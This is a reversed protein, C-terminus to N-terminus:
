RICNSATEVSELQTARVESGALMEKRSAEGSIGESKLPGEGSGLLRSRHVWADREAIICVWHRRKSSGLSTRIGIIQGLHTRKKGSVGHGCSFSIGVIGHAILEEVGCEDFPQGIGDNPPSDSFRFWCHNLVCKSQCKFHLGTQVEMALLGVSWRRRNVIQSTRRRGLTFKKWIENQGDLFFNFSDYTLSTTGRLLAATTLTSGAASRLLRLRVVMRILILAASPDWVLSIAGIAPTVGGISALRVIGLIAHTEVIRAGVGCFFALTTMTLIKVGFITFGAELTPAHSM